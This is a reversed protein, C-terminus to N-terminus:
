PCSEPRMQHSRYSPALSLALAIELLARVHKHLFTMYYIPGWRQEWRVFKRPGDEITALLEKKDPGRPIKSNRLHIDRRCFSFIIGVIHVLRFGAACALAAGLISVVSPFGFLARLQLMVLPQMLLQTFFIIRILVAPTSPRGVYGVDPIKFPCDLASM